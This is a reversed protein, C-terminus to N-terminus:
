YLGSMRPAPLPAEIRHFTSYHNNTYFIGGSNGIILRGIPSTSRGTADLVDYAWYSGNCTPLQAGTARDIFNKYRHPHLADVQSGTGNNIINLTDAIDGRENSDLTFPNANAYRYPNIGGNLGVLDAEAYRGLNPMYDRFGNQHLGTEADFFQGPLRLNQTATSTTVTSEGFPKYTAAWVTTQSNNDVQQPTGLRDTFVYDIQNATPSAGPHFVAIPMGDVWAYDTYTTGNKEAILEGSQDYFYLSTV